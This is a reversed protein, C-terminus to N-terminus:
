AHCLNDGQQLLGKLGPLTIPQVETNLRADLLVAAFFVAAGLMDSVDYAAEGVSRIAENSVAVFNADFQFYLNVSTIAGTAYLYGLRQGGSYIAAIDTLQQGNSLTYGIALPSGDYHGNEFGSKPCNPANPLPVDPNTYPSLDYPPGKPYSPPGGAGGPGGGGGTPDGGLSGVTPDPYCSIGDGEYGPYCAYVCIHNTPCLGSSDSGSAPNNGDYAFGGGLPDTTDWSELAPEYTRAGQITSTQDTYSDARLSVFMNSTSACGPVAGTFSGEQTYSTTMPAVIDLSSCQEYLDSDVLTGYGTATSGNHSSVLYDFPDRDWITPGAYTTDLPLVDATTGSKIDDVQGAGNTSFLLSAGSWYLNQQDSIGESPSGATRAMIQGTPAKYYTVYQYPVSHTNIKNALTDELDYENVISDTGNSSVSQARDKVDYSIVTTIPTPSPSPANPAPTWSSGTPAANRADFTQHETGCIRQLGQTVCLQTAPTLLFGDASVKAFPNSGGIKSVLEGRTSYGLNINVASGVQPSLTYETVEGELDYKLSNYVGAAIPEQSLRGFTDYAFGGSPQAGVNDFTTSVRGGATFTQGFDFSSLQSGSYYSVKTETLLGNDTYDYSYGSLPAVNNPTTNSLWGNSYYSYNISPTPGPTPTPSAQPAPTPMQESAMLGASNYTYNFVNSTNGSQWGNSAVLADAISSMRGDPDFLFVRTADQIDGGLPGHSEVWGATSALRGTADYLMSEDEVSSDGIQSLLGVSSQNNDYAYPTLFLSNTGSQFTYKGTPRNLQDYSSGTAGIWYGSSPPPSSSGQDQVSAIYRQTKFMNGYATYFTNHGQSDGLYVLGGIVSLDQNYRTLWPFGYYDNKSDQPQEVEVLRDAGDFWRTVKPLSSGPTSMGYMQTSTLLNGDSDYTYQDGTASLAGYQAPSQTEAVQGNPEYTTYYAAQFYPNPITKGCAAGNLTYDDPGGVATMRGDQDYRMVTWRSVGVSSCILDGSLDYVLNEQPSVNLLTDNMTIQGGIIQTPLGLDVGGQSTTAYSATYTYAGSRSASPRTITKLEGYPEYGGSPALYTLQTSGVASSPCLTATPAPTASSNWNESLQNVVVPDCYGTLNNSSDYQMYTTRRITGVNTAASPEAIATLNGNKDYDFDTENGRADKVYQIRNARADSGSYWAQYTTITSPAPSPDGTPVTVSTVRDSSDYGYTSIRSFSDEVNTSGSEYAFNLTNYTQQGSAASGDLAVNTGDTPTYNLTGTYSVTGLEINSPDNPYTFHVFSGPEQALNAEYNPTMVDELLGDSTYDYGEVVPTSSGNGAETVSTLHAANDYTYSINVNGDPWKLTTLENYSGWDSFELLATRGDQAVAAIQTLNSSSSANGNTFSYELCMSVNANRGYIAYLRGSYAAYQSQQFPGYFYYETGDPQIWYYGNGGDFQLKSHVGSMADWQGQHQTDATYDYRMGTSDYIFLKNSPGNAAMHVDLTNTWGNGFLSPSSGDSGQADHKSMSNYSRTFNFPVDLNAIDMDAAAILLNGTAINVSYTGVGGIEGRYYGWWPRIGTFTSPLATGTPSPSPSPGPATPTPSPTATPFATPSPYPTPTPTPFGFLNPVSHTSSPRLELAHKLPIRPSVAHPDTMLMGPNLPRRRMTPGVVLSGPIPLTHTGRLSVPHYNRLDITRHINERTEASLPMRYPSQQTAGASEATARVSTPYPWILAIITFGAIIRRFCNM